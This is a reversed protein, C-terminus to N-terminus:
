ICRFVAESELPPVSLPDVKSQPWPKSSGKQWEAVKRLLYFSRGGLNEGGEKLGSFLGGSSPIQLRSRPFCRIRDISPVREYGWLLRRKGSREINEVSSTMRQRLLDRASGRAQSKFQGSVKWFNSSFICKFFKQM